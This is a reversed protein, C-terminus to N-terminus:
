FIKSSLFSVTLAMARAYILYLCELTTVWALPGVKEVKCLIRTVVELTQLSRSTM